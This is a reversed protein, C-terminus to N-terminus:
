KIKSKRKSLNRQKKTKYKFKRFLKFFIIDEKINLEKQNNFNLFLIIIFIIILIIFIKKM